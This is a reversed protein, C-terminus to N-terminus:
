LSWRPDDDDVPWYRIHAELERMAEAVVIWIAVALLALIILATIM